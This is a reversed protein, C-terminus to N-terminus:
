INIDIKFRKEFDHISAKLTPKNWLLWYSLAGASTPDNLNDKAHRRRYNAKAKERVGKDPEYWKSNKDNMLVYDKYRDDGFHTNKNEFKAVYKKGDRKSKKLEM